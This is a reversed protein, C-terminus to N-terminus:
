SKSTAQVYSRGEFRLFCGCAGAAGVWDACGEDREERGFVSAESLTGMEVAADVELEIRLSEIPLALSKARTGLRAVRRSLTSSSRGHFTNARELSDIM